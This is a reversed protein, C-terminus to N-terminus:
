AAQEALAACAGGGPEEPEPEAPPPAPPPAPQLLRAAWSHTSPRLAWARFTWWHRQMKVPAVTKKREKAIKPVMYGVSFYEKNPLQRVADEFTALDKCPVGDLELIIADSKVVDGFVIGSLAVYVGELPIHHRMATQYPVKHFIGLGMEVFERPILSHADCVQLEMEVPQGRPVGRAGGRRGRGCGPRRRPPRLRRLAQRQAGRARGRAASAARGRLRAPLEEGAAHRWPARG